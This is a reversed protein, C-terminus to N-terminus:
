GLCEAICRAARVEPAVGDRLTRALSGARERVPHDPRLLEGLTAALADRDALEPPLYVGVGARDCLEANLPQDIEFPVLIMPVGALLARSVSGWGGHTVVVSSRPVLISHPVHREVRVNDPVAFPLELAGVGIVGQVPLEGLADVVAQVYDLVRPVLSGMPTTTVTVVVLPRTADLQSAWPPVGEAPDAAALPGVLEVRSGPGEGGDFPATWPLVLLESSITQAYSTQESPPLDLERRLGSVDLDRLPSAIGKQREYPATALSVWRLGAAQAALAAGVHLTDIVVGDFRGRALIGRLERAAREAVGVGFSRIEDVSSLQLFAASAGETTMPLYDCGARRVREECAEEAYVCVRHGLERLAQAVALHPLLHGAFLYPTVLVDAM